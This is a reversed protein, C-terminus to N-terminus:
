LLCLFANGQRCSELIPNLVIVISAFSALFGFPLGSIELWPTGLSKTVRNENIKTLLNRKKHLKKMLRESKERVCVRVRVCACACACACVTLALVRVRVSPQGM